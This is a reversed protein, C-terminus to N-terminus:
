PRITQQEEEQLYRIISDLFEMIGVAERPGLAVEISDPLVEDLYAVISIPRAKWHRDVTNTLGCVAM